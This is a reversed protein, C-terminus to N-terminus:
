DANTKQMYQSFNWVIISTLMILYIVMSRNLINEFLSFFVILLYFLSIRGNIRFSILIFRIVLFIFYALGIIGFALIFDIVQNHSNLHSHKEYYDLDWVTHPVIESLYIQVDGLGEGIFFTQVSINEYIANYIVYRQNDILYVTNETKINNVDFLEFNIKSNYFYFATIIAIILSYLILNRKLNLNFFNLGWFLFISFLFIFSSDGPLFLIFLCFFLILVYYIFKFIIKNTYKMFSIIIFAGLSYILRLYTSHNFFETHKYISQAKDACWLKNRDRVFELVQQIKNLKMFEQGAVWHEHEGYLLYGDINYNIYLFLYIILSVLFFLIMLCFIIKSIKIKLNLILPIGFILPLLITIRQFYERHSESNVFSLLLLFFTILYLKNKFFFSFQFSNISLTQKYLLLLLIIISISQLANPLM